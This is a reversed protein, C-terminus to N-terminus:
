ANGAWWLFIVSTVEILREDVGCCWHWWKQLCNKQEMCAKKDATGGSAGKIPALSMPWPDPWLFTVQMSTWVGFAVLTAILFILSWVGSLWTPLNLFLSGHPIIALSIWHIVSLNNKLIQSGHEMEFPFVLDINWKGSVHEREISGHEPWCIWTKHVACVSTFLMSFYFGM